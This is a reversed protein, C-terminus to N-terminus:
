GAHFTHIDPLSVSIHCIRCGEPLLRQLAAISTGAVISIWLVKKLAAADNSIVQALAAEVDFPKVAIVVADPLEARAFWQRPEAIAASPDLDKLADRNKDYVTIQIGGGYKRSLGAILARGM